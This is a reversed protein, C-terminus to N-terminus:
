PVKCRCTFNKHTQRSSDRSQGSAMKIPDSDAVEELSAVTGDVYV